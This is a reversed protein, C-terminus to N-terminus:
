YNRKFFENGWSFKSLILKAYDDFKTIILTAAIAEASTLKEWKGYNVPNAAMLRPLRRSNEKNLYKINLLTKWSCDIVILGYKLIRKRDNISVEKKSFPNLILANNLSGKVKNIIKLLNHRKLKLATCKKKSCGGDEYRLCYLKLSFETAKSNNM